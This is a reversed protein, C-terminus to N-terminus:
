TRAPDLKASGSRAACAAVVAARAEAPNDVVWRRHEDGDVHEAILATYPWPEIQPAGLEMQRARPGVAM